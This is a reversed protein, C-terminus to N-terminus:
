EQGLQEKAKEDLSKTTVSVSVDSYYRKTIITGEPMDASGYAGFDFLENMKEMTEREEDTLKAMSDERLQKREEESMERLANSDESSRTWFVVDVTGSALASARGVSDVVVLEINKGIRKSIEAMLAISFGAPSGDAAVYDMPPLSGTVAVKITEADKKNPLDIEKITGETIADEIYNKALTKLTGEADLRNIAVNFQNRLEENGEKFMFCYDNTLSKKVLTGFEGEDELNEGSNIQILNDNNACLYRAVTNDVIMQQIEEANLGMLMADLTDYFTVKYHVDYKDAFGGNYINDDYGNKRLQIFALSKAALANAVDEETENLMTLVGVKIEVEEKGSDTAAGNSTDKASSNDSKAGGCACLATLMSLVLILSLIKKMVYM